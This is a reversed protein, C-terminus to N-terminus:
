HYGDSSAKKGLSVLRADRKSAVEDAVGTELKSGWSNLCASPALFRELQFSLALTDLRM